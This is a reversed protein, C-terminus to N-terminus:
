SHKRLNAKYAEIKKDDWGRAKLAAIQQPTVINDNVAVSETHSGVAAGPSATM